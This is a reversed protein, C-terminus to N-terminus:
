FNIRYLMMPFMGQQYVYDIAKKSSSYFSNYVNQHNSLNTIDLAWEQTTKKGNMKFSVRADLRFYSKERQSYAKSHDYKTENNAISKELDIFLNRKGGASIMRVNMDISMKDNIPIEYGGLANVVYNTNFETNRWVGDSPLYKSEFLSTTILFYYNNNLYKELTFETGYNRALGGNVLNDVRDQHFSSGANVMSFYSSSNKIPINYLYQYYGEVKLKLNEALYQDYGVVFHHAKSFDLNINTKEYTENTRDYAETLLIYFPQM